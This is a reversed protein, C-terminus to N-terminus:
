ISKENIDYDVAFEGAYFYRPLKGNVVFLKQEVMKVEHHNCVDSRAKIM